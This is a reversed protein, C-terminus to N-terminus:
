LHMRKERTDKDTLSTLITAGHENFGRRQKRHCLEENEAWFYVKILKLEPQDRM